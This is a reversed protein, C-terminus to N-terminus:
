VFIVNASRLVFNSVRKLVNVAALVGTKVAADVPFLVVYGARLM